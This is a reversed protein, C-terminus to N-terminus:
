YVFTRTLLIVENSNVIKYARSKAGNEQYYSINETVRNLAKDLNLQHKKIPPLEPVSSSM